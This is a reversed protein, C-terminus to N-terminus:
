GCTSGSVEISAKVDETLESTPQDDPEIPSATGAKENPESVTGAELDAEVVATEVRPFLWQRLRSLM